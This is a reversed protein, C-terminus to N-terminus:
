FGSGRLGSERATAAQPPTVAKSILGAATEQVADAFAEMTVQHLREIVQTVANEAEHLDSLLM